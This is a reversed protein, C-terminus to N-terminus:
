KLSDKLSEEVSKLQLEPAVGEVTSKFHADPSNRFIAYVEKPNDKKTLRYYTDVFKAMSKGSMWKSMAKVEKNSGTANKVSDFFAESSKYEGNLIYCGGVEGNECIALLTEAVDRVDVFAHGGPVTSVGQELYKQLMKNLDSNEDFGPGIIFTPLLMVASLKNLSTKEIIYAGAEAKTKAYEGEVKSRDFHLVSNELRSSPNLAYASGLWVIRGVKYKICQDIVNQTGTVNIRRMNLDTVESVNVVEDCHVIASHRADELQFFDKMTDKDFVSGKFVEIGKETFEEGESGAPLLVRVKCESEALKMAVLKGVPNCAGTVLYEQYM